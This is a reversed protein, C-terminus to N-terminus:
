TTARTIFSGAAPVFEVDGAMAAEGVTANIPDYGLLIFTGSFSPNTTSVSSSTPKATVVAGTSGLALMAALTADVKTAAHDQYFTVSIKDDRLGVGHERSVAGMATLDVDEAKMSVVLSKVYASLDVSNVTLSYNTAIFKAM